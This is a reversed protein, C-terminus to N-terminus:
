QQHQHVVIALDGSQKVALTPTMDVFYDQIANIRLGAKDVAYPFSIQDRRSHRCYEEWWIRNFQEVKPTHRRLIIGCECLGKHKAFGKDEYTKVQDIITEVNDLNRVACVKAEDYLCDRQPHKFVALDCDKLYKEILTEPPVLLKINGDIWISYETDVYQHILIKHIRSNRRPDYFTDHAKKIEWTDSSYPHDLFAVFKTNGKVQDDLLDDKSGCISTVVTINYEAM